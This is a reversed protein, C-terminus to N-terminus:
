RPAATEPTFTEDVVDGPNGLRGVPRGNVTVSLASANGIRMTLQHQAQWTELDGASLFGEFVTVGDAVARVWSRDTATVSVTLPAPGTPTQSGSAPAQPPATSGSPTPVPSASSSTPGAAPGMAPRPASSGTVTGTGSAPGAHDPTAAGPGPGASPSPVTSVSEPPGQGSTAAFQRLQGYLIYALVAAGVLLVVLGGTVVRRARSRRMTVPTIRVDVPVSDHGSWPGSIAAYMAAIEDAPLGLYSAYSNLFGKVYTAGPLEDFAEDELAELYRRRIRTAAEADEFALGRAQRANRLREGVGLSSM